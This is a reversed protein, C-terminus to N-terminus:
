LKAEWDVQGVFGPDNVSLTFGSTSKNSHGVSPILGTNTDIGPSHTVLFESSPFNSLFIIQVDTGSGTFVATGRAYSGQTIPAIYVQSVWGWGHSEVLEKTSIPGALTPVVGVLMSGDPLAITWKPPPDNPYTETADPLTFSWAGSLDTQTQMGYRFAVSGSITPNLGALPRFDGAYDAFRNPSDPIATVIQGSLPVLSGAPNRYGYIDSIICPM